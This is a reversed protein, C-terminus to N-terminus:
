EQKVPVGTDDEKTSSTAETTGKTTLGKLKSVDRPACEDSGIKAFRSYKFGTDFPTSLAYDTASGEIAGEAMATTTVEVRHTYDDTKGSVAMNDGDYSQGILGHPFCSASSNGFEKAFRTGDLKRMALDFRWSSPGRIIMYIPERTANVQPTLSLPCVSRPLFAARLHTHVACAPTPALRGSPMWRHACLSRSCIYPWTPHPCLPSHPRYDITHEPRPCLPESYLPSPWGAMHTKHILPPPDDTHPLLLATRAEWGNARVYITQHKYYALIGDEKWAQWVGNRQAVVTTPQHADLVDFGIKSASSVIAYLRKSLGRVVWVADTFFTGHVLQVTPLLFDTVMTRASFHVGPATLMAYYTDNQGRFDAQTNFVPAVKTPVM